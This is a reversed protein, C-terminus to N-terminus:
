APPPGRTSDPSSPDSPAGADAPRGGELRLGEDATSERSAAPMPAVSAYFGRATSGLRELWAALVETSPGWLVTLPIGLARAITAKEAADPDSRGDELRAIAEASVGTRQCLEAHTLGLASRVLALHAAAGPSCAAVPRTRGM